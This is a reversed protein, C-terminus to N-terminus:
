VVTIDRTEHTPGKQKYANPPVCFRRVAEDTPVFDVSTMYRMNKQRMKYAGGGAPVMEWNHKTVLEEIKDDTFYKDM